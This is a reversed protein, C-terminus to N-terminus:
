KKQFSEFFDVHSMKKFEEYKLRKIIRVPQEKIVIEIYSKLIKRCSRDVRNHLEDGSRSKIYEIIVTFGVEELKEIIKFMKKFRQREKLNKNEQFYIQDTKVIIKGVDVIKNELLYNLSFEISLLEADGSKSCNKVLILEHIIEKNNFFCLYGCASIKNKDSVSADTYITYVDM